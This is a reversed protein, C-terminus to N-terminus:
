PAPPLALPLSLVFRVVTADPEYAVQGGLAQVLGKVLYLGLGTGSQRQAHPARYYKDFVRSADPWGAPGALNSLALRVLPQATPGDVVSCRVEIPTGLPAYKCANELLNSLVLHLLQPDTELALSPPLYLLVQQPQPCSSVADQVVGVLDCVQLHPALQGDGLQLTQLCREIVGDMDRIAKRMASGGKAESDLRMHMTALPNKIEHALMAMLKEQDERMHREHAVQLTSIELNVLAEQRQQRVVHARYQLMLMLLVSSVLTQLQSIYLTWETAPLWGLGTTAAIVMIALFALYFVVLTRRSLAPAAGGGGGSAAWARGTAACVLCVPPALLISLINNQLAWTVHGLALLVLNFGALALMGLLLGMAWRPPQFERLFRWHFLVGGMVVVVSFVSGLLNLTDATWALPWFVRLVGTTSLGFLGATFQMLAFAGMVGERYLLSNAVGWVMLVVVVGLYLSVLLNQRLALTDLESRPVAVVHIQRTSTSALRLWIDRPADGRAIPMLFSAGQLADLRPHYLDGVAGVRGGPVLPDFVVVEDLYAPRMRLVLDDTPTATATPAAPATGTQPTATAGSDRPDIRLRLWVVGTGYGRSLTEAFPQTAQQQVQAWTMQGTPDELWARETIHDQAQALPGGGLCAWVLAWRMAARLWAWGPQRLGQTPLPPRLREGGMCARLHNTLPRVARTNPMAITQATSMRGARFPPSEGLPFTM